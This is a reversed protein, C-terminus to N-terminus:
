PDWWISFNKKTTEEVCLMLLNGRCQDARSRPITSITKVSHKDDGSIVTLEPNLTYSTNLV